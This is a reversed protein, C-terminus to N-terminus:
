GVVVTQELHRPEAVNLSALYGRIARELNKKAEDESTARVMCGPLSPCWARVRDSSERAIKVLLRM